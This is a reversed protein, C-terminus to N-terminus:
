SAALLCDKGTTLSVDTASAVTTAKLADREKQVQAATAINDNPFGDLNMAPLLSTRPHYPFVPNHGLAKIVVVQHPRPEDAHLFFNEM